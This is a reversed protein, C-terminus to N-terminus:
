CSIFFVNSSELSGTVGTGLPREAPSILGMIYINKEKGVANM